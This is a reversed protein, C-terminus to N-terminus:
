STSLFQLSVTVAILMNNVKVNLFCCCLWKCFFSHSTPLFSSKCLVLFQFKYLNTLINWEFLELRNSTLLQVQVLRNSSLIYRSLGTQPDFTGPCAQKIFFQVQVLRNSTWNRRSASEEEGRRGLHPFCM